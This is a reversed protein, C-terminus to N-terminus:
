RDVNTREMNLHTIIIVALPFLLVNHILFVFFPFHFFNDCFQSCRWENKRWMVMLWMEDHGYFLILHQIKWEPGFLLLFSYSSIWFSFVQCTNYL